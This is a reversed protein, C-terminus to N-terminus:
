FHKGPKTQNSEELLSEYYSQCGHTSVHVELERHAREFDDRTREARRHAADFEHHTLGANLGAGAQRYAHVADHCQKLHVERQPCPSSLQL